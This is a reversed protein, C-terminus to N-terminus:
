QIMFGQQLKWTFKRHFGHPKIRGVKVLYHNFNDLFMAWRNGMFAGAGTGAFITFPEGNSHSKFGGAFFLEISDVHVQSGVLTDGHAKSAPVLQM